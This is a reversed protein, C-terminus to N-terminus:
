KQFPKYDWFKADLALLTIVVAATVLNLVPTFIVVAALLLDSVTQNTLKYDDEKWAITVLLLVAICYTFITSTM